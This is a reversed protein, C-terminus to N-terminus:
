VMPPIYVYESGNKNINISSHTIELMQKELKAFNNVPILVKLTVGQHYLIDTIVNNRAAELIARLKGFMSYDCRVDVQCCLKKAIVKAAAIGAMASKSYARVLGATGLLSGGFYRTVVVVINHLDLRRIVELVPIGATGSPEGDDSYRQSISANPIGVNYCYVNHTANWYTSKITDIFGKAESECSVPKVSSIFKSKKIEIEASACNLITQFETNTM